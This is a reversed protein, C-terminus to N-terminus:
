CRAHASLYAALAYSLIHSNASLMSVSCVYSFVVPSLRSYLGMTLKINYPLLTNNGATLLASCREWIMFSVDAM